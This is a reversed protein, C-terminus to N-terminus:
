QVYTLIGSVRGAQAGVMRGGTHVAWGCVSHLSTACHQPKQTLSPGADGRESQATDGDSQLHDGLGWCVSAGQSHLSGPHLPARWLGEGGARRLVPPPFVFMTELVALDAQGPM